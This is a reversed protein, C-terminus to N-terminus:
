RVTIHRATGVADVPQVASTFAARIEDQQILQHGVHRPTFNQLLQALIGCGSGARNREERRLRVLVIGLRHLPHTDGADDRLREVRRLETVTDDLNQLSVASTPSRGVQGPLRGVPNDLTQRPLEQRATHLFAVLNQGHQVRGCAQVAGAGVVDHM